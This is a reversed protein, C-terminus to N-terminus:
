KVKIYTKKRARKLHAQQIKWQRIQYMASSKELMPTGEIWYPIRYHVTRTKMQPTYVPRSGAEPESVMIRYKPICAGVAVVLAVFVLFKKRM